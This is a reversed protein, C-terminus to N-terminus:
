PERRRGPDRDPVVSRCSARLEPSRRGWGVAAGGVTEIAVSKNQAGDSDYKQILSREKHAPSRSPSAGDVRRGAGGSGRGNIAIRRTRQLRDWRYSIVGAGLRSGRAAGRLRRDGSTERQVSRRRIQGDSRGQRGGSGDRPSLQDVVLRRLRHLVETQMVDLRFREAAHRHRQRDACRRGRDAVEERRHGAGAGGSGASVAVSRGHM